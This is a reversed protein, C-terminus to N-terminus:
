RRKGEKLREEIVAEMRDFPVEVDDLWLSPTGEVLARDADELDERIMTEIDAGGSDARLRKWDLGAKGAAEKVAGGDLSGSRAFLAEHLAWYGDQRAAALALRAAEGAYLHGEIPCQKVVLAVEPHRAVLAKLAPAIERCYPCEFDFFEVITLKADEAGLRPRGALRFEARHNLRRTEELLAVVIEARPQGAQVRGVVFRALPLAIRCEAAHERLTEGFSRPAGCPDFQDEVVERFLTRQEESLASLDLGPFPADNQSGTPPKRAIKCRRGEASSERCDTDAGERCASVALTMVLAVLLLKVPRRTTM